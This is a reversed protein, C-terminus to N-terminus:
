SSYTIVFTDTAGGAYVNANFEAFAFIAVTEAWAGYPYNYPNLYTPEGLDAGTLSQVNSYNANKWFAALTGTAHNSPDWTTGVDTSESSANTYNYFVDVGFFNITNPLASAFSATLTINTDGTDTINVSSKPSTSLQSNVSSTNFLSHPTIDQFSINTLGTPYSVSISVQSQVDFYTTINSTSARVVGPSLVTTIVILALLVSTADKLNFSLKQEVYEYDCPNSRGATVIQHAIRREEAKRMCVGSEGPFLPEPLSM